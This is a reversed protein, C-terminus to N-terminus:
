LYQEDRLEMRNGQWTEVIKELKGHRKKIERARELKPEGKQHAISGVPNFQEVCLGTMIM